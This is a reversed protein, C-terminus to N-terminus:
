RQPTLERVSGAAVGFLPALTQGQRTYFNDRLEISKVKFDEALKRFSDVVGQNKADPADELLYTESARTSWKISLKHYSEQGAYHLLAPNLGDPITTIDTGVGLWQMASTIFQTLEADLMWQYYYTAEVVDGDVPATSLVFHGSVLDDSTLDTAPTVATSNKFVGMPSAATTFDTVRRFEFTKFIKNVGDTKGFCRKM